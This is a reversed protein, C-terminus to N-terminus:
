KRSWAFHSLIVRHSGTGRKRSGLRSNFRSGVKRRFLEALGIRQGILDDDAAVLWGPQQGRSRSGHTQSPRPERQISAVCSVCCSTSPALGGRNGWVSWGADMMESGVANGVSVEHLLAQHRPWEEPGTQDMCTGQRLSSDVHGIPQTPAQAPRQDLHRSM